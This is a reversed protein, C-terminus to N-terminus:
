APSKPLAPREEHPGPAPPRFCCTTWALGIAEDLVSKAGDSTAWWRDLAYRRPPAALVGVEVEPGFAIRYVLRSRRAHVGRRSSISRTSRPGAAPAALRARRRRQPLQPGAAVEAGARRRGPKRWAPAPLRRRARRVDPWRQDERWGEIPGGSMVVREYSGRAILAIADDLADEELWGEVILTRAGKGDRGAAPADAALYSGLGRLALLASALAVLALLLAGWWTPLWVQRRRFLSPM